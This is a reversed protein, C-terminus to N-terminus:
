DNKMKRKFVLTTLIVFVIAFITVFILHMWWTDLLNYTVNIGVKQYNEIIENFDSVRTPYFHNIANQSLSIAHFFPLSQSVYKFGGMQHIPMFMGSTIAALNVILSSIGGVAKDNVLLGILIGCSIFFIMIPLNILFTLLIRANLLDFTVKTMLSFLFGMIYVVVMQLFAILIMPIFYGLFQEFPKLPSAKLRIAFATSRDKAVLMGSFLTLFSFGFIAISPIINEPLFMPMTKQITEEDKGIIFCNFLLLMLIPFIFNFILSLFDRMMEKLNRKAFIIFRM